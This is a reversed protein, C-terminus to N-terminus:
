RGIGFGYGFAVDIGVGGAIYHHQRNAHRIHILLKNKGVECM